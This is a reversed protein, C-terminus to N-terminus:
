HLIHSSKTNGRNFNYTLQKPRMDCGPGDEMKPPLWSADRAQENPLCADSMCARPLTRGGLVKMGRYPSIPKAKLSTNVGKRSTNMCICDRRQIQHADQNVTLFARLRWAAFRVAGKCPFCPGKRATSLQQEVTSPLAPLWLDAVGHHSLHAIGPDSFM